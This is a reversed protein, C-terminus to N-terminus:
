WTDSHQHSSYHMRTYEQTKFDKETQIELITFIPQYSGWSCFTEQTRLLKLACLPGLGLVKLAAAPRSVCLTLFCLRPKLGWIFDRSEFKWSNVSYSHHIFVTRQASINRFSWHSFFLGKFFFARLYLPYPTNGGKSLWREESNVM